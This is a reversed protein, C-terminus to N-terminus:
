LSALRGRLRQAAFDLFSRTKIPLRGGGAQLLHVPLPEVEFNALIIRLLVTWRRQNEAFHVELEPDVNAPM